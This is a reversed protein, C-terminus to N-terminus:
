NDRPLLMGLVMVGLGAAWLPSPSHGRFVEVGAVAAGAGMVLNHTADKSKGKSADLGGSVVDYAAIGMVLGGM